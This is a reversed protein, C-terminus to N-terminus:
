TKNIYYRGGPLKIYTNFMLLKQLYIMQLHVIKDM